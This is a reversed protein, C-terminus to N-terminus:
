EDVHVCVVGSDDIEAVDVPLLSGILDCMGAGEEEEDDDDNDNGNADDVEDVDVDVDM